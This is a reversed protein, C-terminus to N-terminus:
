RRISCSFTAADITKQLVRSSVRRTYVKKCPRPKGAAMSEDSRACLRRSRTISPKLVRCTRCRTVVSTAERPMSM